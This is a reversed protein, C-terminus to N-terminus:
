VAVHGNTYKVIREFLVKTIGHSFANALILVMAGFTIAIGLLLNRRKQRLINRLAINFIVPM